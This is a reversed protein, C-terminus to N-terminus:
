SALTENDMKSNEMAKETDDFWVISFLDGLCTGVSINNVKDNNPGCWAAFSSTRDDAATVAYVNLDDELINNFLSGSECAEVYIVM